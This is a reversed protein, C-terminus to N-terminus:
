LDCVAYKIEDEIKPYPTKESNHRKLNIAYGRPIYQPPAIDNKFNSFIEEFLKMTNIRICTM